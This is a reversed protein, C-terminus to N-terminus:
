ELQTPKWTGLKVENLRKAESRTVRGDSNLDFADVQEHTRRLSFLFLFFRDDSVHNTIRM